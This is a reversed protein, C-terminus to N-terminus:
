ENDHYDDLDDLDTDLMDIDDTATDLLDTNTIDAVNAPNDNHINSIDTMNSEDLVNDTDTINTADDSSANITNNQTTTSTNTTDTMSENDMDAYTQPNSEYVKEVASLMQKELREHLPKKFIMLLIISLLTVSGVITFLWVGKEEFWSGKQRLIAYTGTSANAICIYDNDIAFDCQKLGNSTVEYVKLKSIDMDKLSIKLTSFTTNEGSSIEVNFVKLVKLNEQKQLNSIRINESPNQELINLKANTKFGDSCHAEITLNECEAKLQVPYIKVRCTKSIENYNQTAYIKINVTYDGVSSIDFVELGNVFYHITRSGSYDIDFSVPQGDYTKEISSSMNFNENAKKIHFSYTSNTLDINPDDTTATVTYPEGDENAETYGDSVTLIIGDAYAYPTQKSGTYFRQIDIWNVTVTRKSITWTFSTNKPLSYNPNTLGLINVFYNGFNTAIITSDDSFILKVPESAGIVQIDISIAEGSYTYPQNPWIIQIQSPTVTVSKTPNIIEYNHEYKSKLSAVITWNGVSITSPQGDKVWSINVYQNLCANSTLATEYDINDSILWDITINKPLVNFEKSNNSSMYMNDSFMTNIDVVVKYKGVDLVNDVNEFQSTNENFRYYSINLYDNSVDTTFPFSLNTGSYELDSDSFSITVELASVTVNFINTEILTEDYIECKLTYNGANLNPISVSQTTVYETDNLYWIYEGITDVSANLTQGFTLSINSTIQTPTVPESQCSCRNTSWPNNEIFIDMMDSSSFLFMTTEPFASEKITLGSVSSISVNQINTGSFVNDSITKLSSPLLIDGTLNSCDKFANRSIQALNIAQTLDLGIIYQNGSFGKIEVVPYDYGDEYITAPIVLVTESSLNAGTLKVTDTTNIHEFTFEIDLAFVPNFTSFVTVLFTILCLFFVSKFFKDKAIM